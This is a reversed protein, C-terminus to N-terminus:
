GENTRHLWPTQADAVRWADQGLDSAGPGFRREIVEVEGGSSVEVLTSARTGYSEGQIFISSLLRERELDFGTDPLDIDAAVQPDRLLALLAARDVGRALAVEAHQQIRQMKPWQDALAGNSISHLGAGLVKRQRSVGDLAVVSEGDGVILNFPSYQETDTYLAALYDGAAMDGLVFDRVLKGRSRPAPKPPGCRVNTIAAFRGDNRVALWTGGAVLDRGGLVRADEAWPAAAASARAHNEDRNALVLLRSGPRPDIGVLILCM